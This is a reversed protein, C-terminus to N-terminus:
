ISQYSIEVIFLTMRSRMTGINSTHPLVWPDKDMTMIPVLYVIFIPSNGIYFVLPSLTISGTIYSYKFMEVNISDINEKYDGIFPITLELKARYNLMCYDLQDITIIKGEHPFCIARFLYYIVTMM